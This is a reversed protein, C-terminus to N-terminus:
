RRNQMFGSMGIATTIRAHPQLHSLHRRLLDHLRVEDVAHRCQLLVHLRQLQLRVLDPLRDRTDLLRVDFLDVELVVVDAGHERLLLTHRTRGVFLELLAGVAHVGFLEVDRHTKM